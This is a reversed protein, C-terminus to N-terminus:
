FYSAKAKKSFTLRSNIILVFNRSIDRVKFQTYLNRKVAYPNELLDVVLNLFTCPKYLLRIAKIGLHTQLTAVSQSMFCQQLHKKFETTQKDGENSQSDFTSVVNSPMDSVRIQIGGVHFVVYAM